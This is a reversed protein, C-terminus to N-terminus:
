ERYKKEREGGRLGGSIVRWIIEMETIRKQLKKSLENKNKNKPKTTLLQSNTTIKSNM